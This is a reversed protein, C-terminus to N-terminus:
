PRKVSVEQAFEERWKGNKIETTLEEWPQDQQLHLEGQKAMELCVSLTSTLASRARLWAASGRKLPADDVAEGAPLLERFVVSRDRGGLLVARM